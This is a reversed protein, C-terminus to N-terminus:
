FREFHKGAVHKWVGFLKLEYVLGETGRHWLTTAVPSAASDANTVRLAPVATEASAGSRFYAFPM